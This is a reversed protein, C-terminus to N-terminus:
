FLGRGRRECFRRKEGKGGSTKGGKAPFSVVKKASLSNKKYLGRGETRSTAGGKFSMHIDGKRNM